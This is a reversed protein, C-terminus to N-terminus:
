GGHRAKGVCRCGTLGLWMWVKEEQVGSCGKSRLCLVWMREPCEPPGLGQM